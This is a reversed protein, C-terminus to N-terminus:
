GLGDRRIGDHRAGHVGLSGHRAGDDVPGHQILEALLVVFGGRGMMWPGMHEGWEGTTRQQSSAAPTQRTMGPGMGPSTGMPQASVNAGVGLVLLLMPTVM